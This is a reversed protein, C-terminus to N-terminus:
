HMLWQANLRVKAHAILPLGNVPPLHSQLFQWYHEIPGTTLAPNMLSIPTSLSVQVKCHLSSFREDQLEVDVPIDRRNLMEKIQERLIVLREEPSVSDESEDLRLKSGLTHLEKMVDKVAMRLGGLM